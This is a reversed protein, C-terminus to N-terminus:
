ENLLSLRNLVMEEHQVVHRNFFISGTTTRAQKFAGKKDVVAFTVELPFEVEPRLDDEAIGAQSILDNIDYQATLDLLKGEGPSLVVRKTTAMVLDYNGPQKPGGLLVAIEAIVEHRSGENRVFVPVTFTDDTHEFPFVIVTVEHRQRVYANYFTSASVVLALTAISASLFDKIEFKTRGNSVVTDAGGSERINGHDPPPESESVRDTPASAGSAGDTKIIPQSGAGPEGVAPESDM